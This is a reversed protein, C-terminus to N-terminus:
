KLNWSCNMMFGNKSVKIASSQRKIAKAMFNATNEDGERAVFRRYGEFRSQHDLLSYTLDREM